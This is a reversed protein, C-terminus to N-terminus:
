SRQGKDGSPGYTISFNPSIAPPRPRAPAPPTRHSGARSGDGAAMLLQFAAVALWAAKLVASFDDLLLHFRFWMAASFQEDHPQLGVRTSGQNDSMPTIREVRRLIGEFGRAQAPLGAGIGPLEVHLHGAVAHRHDQVVLRQQARGIDRGSEGAVRATAVAEADRIEVEFLDPGELGSRPEDGVAAPGSRGAVEPRDILETRGLDVM